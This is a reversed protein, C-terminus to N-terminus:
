LARAREKLTEIYEPSFSTKEALEETETELLDEVTSIGVSELEEAKKKGIGKIETLSRKVEAKKERAEEKKKEKERKEKEKVKKEKKEKLKEEKEKEEEIRKRADEELQKQREEALKQLTQVNSEHLTRRRPDVHVGLRRVQHVTLGAKEVEYLSFGKGSRSGDTKRVQAEM